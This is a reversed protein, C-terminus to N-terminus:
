PKLRISIPPGEKMTRGGFAIVDGSANSIPFIIRDYFYPIMNGDKMTFLGSSALFERSYEKSTLLSLLWDRTGPVYGLRFSEIIESAIGRKDLYKRAQEGRKDKVLLHHFSVTLRNHLEIFSDRTERRVGDNEYEIEVNAKKALLRVAEVFTLKEMEMVFSFINGGKHCGFCYYMSKEPTVTFSPSKEEHFPCLGWYRTGKKKLQIYEGVLGLTDVRRSIEQITSEPIKM